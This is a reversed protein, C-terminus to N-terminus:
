ETTGDQTEEPVSDSLTDVQLQAEQLCANCYEALGTAEQFLKLSEELPLNGAELLRVIEEVRAIATEYTREM